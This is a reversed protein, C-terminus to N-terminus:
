QPPPQVGYKVVFPHTSVSASAAAAGQVLQQALWPRNTKKGQHSDLDWLDEVGVAANDSRRFVMRATGVVFAMDTNYFSINCAFYAVGEQSFDPTCNTATNWRTQDMKSALRNFEAATLTRDSGDGDLFQAFMSNCLDDGQCKLLNFAFKMAAKKAETKADNQAQTCSEAYAAIDPFGGLSDSGPADGDQEFSFDLMADIEEPTTAACVVAITDAATYLGPGPGTGGGGGGGEGEEPETDDCTGGWTHYHTGSGYDQVDIWCGDSGAGTCAFTGIEDGLSSPAASIPGSAPVARLGNWSSQCYMGHGCNWGNGDWYCSLFEMVSAAVIGLGIGPPRTASKFYDRMFARSADNNPLVCNVFDTQLRTDKAFRILQLNVMGTDAATRAITPRQQAIQWGLFKGAFDRRPTAAECAAQGATFALFLFSPAPGSAPSDTTPPPTLRVSGHQV